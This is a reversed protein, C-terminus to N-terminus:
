SQDNPKSKSLLETIRQAERCASAPDPFSLVLVDPRFYAIVETSEQGIQLQFRVVDTGNRGANCDSPQLSKIQLEAEMREIPITEFTVEGVTCYVKGWESGPDVPEFRIETAKDAVAGLLLHAFLLQELPLTAFLAADPIRMTPRAAMEISRQFAIPKSYDQRRAAGKYGAPAGWDLEARM